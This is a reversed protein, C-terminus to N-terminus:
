YIEKLVVKGSKIMIKIKGKPDAVKGIIGSTKNIDEKKDIVETTIGDYQDPYIIGTEESHLIEVAM